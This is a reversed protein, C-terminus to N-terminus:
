EKVMVTRVTIPRDGLFRGALPSNTRSDATVQVAVLEGRERQGANGLPFTIQYNRILRSDLIAQASARAAADSGNAQCASRTAEYAATQLSQRLFIMSTAEISGLVLLTIIPMCVAFEVAAVATRARRRLPRRPAHRPFPVFM